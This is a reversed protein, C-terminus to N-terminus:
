YDNPLLAPPFRARPDEESAGEGREASGSRSPAEVSPDRARERSSARAGERSSARVGEPSSVRSGERSSTPLTARLGDELHKILSVM